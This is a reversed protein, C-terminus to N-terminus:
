RFFLHVFNEFFNRVGVREVHDVFQLDGIQGIQVEEEMSVLPNDFAPVLVRTPDWGGFCTIFIIKKEASSQNQNARINQFPLATGALIGATSQLFKRRNLRM